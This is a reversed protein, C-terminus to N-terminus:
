ALVMRAARGTASKAARRYTARSVAPEITEGVTRGDMTIVTRDIGKRIFSNAVADGLRDYDIEPASISPYARGGQATEEAAMASLRNAARLVQDMGREIGEAFGQDYYEGIEAM